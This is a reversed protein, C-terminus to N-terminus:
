TQRMIKMLREYTLSIRSGLIKKPFHYSMKWLFDDSQNDTIKLEFYEVLILRQCLTERIVDSSAFKVNEYSIQLTTMLKEYTKCLKTRLKEYSKQLNKLLWVKEYIKGLNKLLNKSFQAGPGWTRYLQPVRGVPGMLHNRRNVQHITLHCNQVHVHVTASKHIPSSPLVTVM